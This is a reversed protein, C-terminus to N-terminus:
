AVSARITILSASCPPTRAPNGFSQSASGAAGAESTSSARRSTLLWSRSSSCGSRRTSRVQSVRAKVARRGRRGAGGLQRVRSRGRSRRSRSASRRTNSDSSTPSTAATSLGRSSFARATGSSTTSGVVAVRRELDPDAQSSDGGQLRPQRGGQRRVDGLVPGCAEAHAVAVGAAADEDVARPGAGALVAAGVAVVPVGGAGVTAALAALRGAPGPVGAGRGAPRHRGRPQLLPGVLRLVGDRASGVVQADALAGVVRAPELDGLPVSVITSRNEEPLAVPDWGAGALADRLQAELDRNRAYIVDPGFHDFVGLATTNGIAALWSISSDFRSATQSLEMTPGYFSASRTLARVGAPTSRPSGSACPRPSTATAWGAVRTSCSSTTPPPWCTWTAAPGAAVPVAGVM